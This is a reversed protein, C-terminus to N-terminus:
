YDDDDPGEDDEIEMAIKEGQIEVRRKGNYNSFSTVRGLIRLDIYDGVDPDEELDLKELEGDCLCIRLGPPYEPVGDSPQVPMLQDLKEEDTMAMDVFKTWEGM